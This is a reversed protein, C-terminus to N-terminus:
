RLWNEEGYKQRLKELQRAAQRAEEQGDDLLKHSPEVEPASEEGAFDSIVAERRKKKRRSSMVFVDSYFWCIFYIV